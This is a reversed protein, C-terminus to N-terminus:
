SAPSTPRDGSSSPPSRRACTTATSTCRTGADRRLRPGRRREHARQRRPGGEHRAGRAALQRRDRARARHAAEYVSMADGGCVDNVLGIQAARSADIDKGTYALEAVHGPGSSRPCASSRGWTRSSPSRPRACPSCPTARACACTARPSSTWAAASATATCRPSSRARRPQRDREGVGALRPHGRLARRQVRGALRERAAGADRVGQPRARRQLPARARRHRPRARRRTPRGRAAAVGLDRWFARGMANRAEPRDLWLTAVHGDVELTLVDSTFVSSGRSAACLRPRARHVAGPAGTVSGYGSAGIFDKASEAAEKMADRGSAAVRWAAHSAKPRGPDAWPSRRPTASRGAPRARAQVAERRGRARRVDVLRGNAVARPSLAPSTTRTHSPNMTSAPARGRPRSRDLRRGRRVRHRRAASASRYRPSAKARSM